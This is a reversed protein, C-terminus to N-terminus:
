GNMWEIWGLDRLLSLRIMTRAWAMAVAELSWDGPTVLPAALPLPLLLVPLPPLPPLLLAWELAAAPRWRNRRFTRASSVVSASLPVASPIQAIATGSGRSAASALAEAPASGLRLLLLLRLLSLLMLLM